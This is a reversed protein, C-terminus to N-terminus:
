AYERQTRFMPYLYETDLSHLGREAQEETIPIVRLYPSPAGTFTKETSPAQDSHVICSSAPFPGSPKTICYYAM